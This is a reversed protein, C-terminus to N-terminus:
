FLFMYEEMLSLELIVDSHLSPTPFNFCLALLATFYKFKDILIILKKRFLERIDKFAAGIGWFINRTIISFCIKVIQFTNYLDDLM